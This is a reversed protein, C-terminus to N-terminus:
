LIKCETRRNKKRGEENDNPAIPQTDGYGKYVIRDAPINRSVLFDVVSKARNESLVKNKQADGVNDTHGSIEVRMAPNTQMLSILKNIESHSEPKLEFSGTAFFINNMVMKSGPKIPSLGVELVHPKLSSGAGLSFNQSFFLYGKKSCTFAYDHGSPLCVLYEGNGPNSYSSVVVKGTALDTLEFAAEIPSRSDQDYVKGKVYTVPAPRAAPYLDFRYIDTKGFGEKRESDYYARTGDASVILSSEEGSSNIPYGLNVPSSFQADITKRRSVLLDKKGMSTWGDSSFYLTLNDPHIFPSIESDPTNVSDGMNQAAGWNGDAQLKSFYIDERGKGGPRNSVFYLTRGDSSICPQSEWYKSNIANGINRPRSWQDGNKISFFIDCSGLGKRGEPYEGAVDACCTFLLTQGDPSINEAGENNRTNVPAGLNIRKQWVNNKFTSQYFDETLQNAFSEARNTDTPARLTFVLKTEDATIAPLYEEFRSNVGPGLNVPLFPVPNKIAEAAFRANRQNKRAKAQLNPASKVKLFLTLVSDAARYKELKMLEEALSNYNIPFFSPNIELAKRYCMSADAPKNMSSYLDGMVTWAEVFKPERAVADRMTEIAKQNEGRDALDLAEKLLRIAKKDEISFKEQASSCIVLLMLILFLYGRM